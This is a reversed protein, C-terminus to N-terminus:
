IQFFELLCAYFKCSSSNYLAVCLKTKDSDEIKILLHWSVTELVHQFYKKTDIKSQLSIESLFLIHPVFCQAFRFGHM